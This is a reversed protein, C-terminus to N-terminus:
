ERSVGIAVPWPHRGASVGPGLYLRYGVQLLSRAFAASPVRVRDAGAIGGVRLAVRAVTSPDATASVLYGENSNTVVTLSTGAEVDVYGRALDEATIELSAPNVLGTVKVYSLITASVRILGSRSGEASATAPLAVFAAAALCPALSKLSRLAAAFAM